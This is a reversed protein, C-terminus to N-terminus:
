LGLPNYPHIELYPILSSVLWQGYPLETAVPLNSCQDELCWKFSSGNLLSFNPKWGSKRSHGTSAKFESVLLKRLDLIQQRFGIPTPAKHPGGSAQSRDRKSKMGASRPSVKSISVTFPLGHVVSEPRPGFFARKIPDEVPKLFLEVKSALDVPM